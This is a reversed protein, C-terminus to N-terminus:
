PANRPSAREMRWFLKGFRIDTETIEYGHDEFIEQIRFHKDLSPKFFSDDHTVRDIIEPSKIRLLIKTLAVIANMIERRDGGKIFSTDKGSWYPYV